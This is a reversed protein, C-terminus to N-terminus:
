HWGLESSRPALGGRPLLSVPPLSMGVRWGPVWVERCFARGLCAHQSDRELRPQKGIDDKGQNETERDREMM